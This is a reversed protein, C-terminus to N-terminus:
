VSRDLSGRRNTDAMPVMVRNLLWFSFAFNGATHCSGAGQEALQATCLFAFARVIGLGLM